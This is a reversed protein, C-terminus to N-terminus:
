IKSALYTFIGYQIGLFICYVLIFLIGAPLPFGGFRSLTGVLWYQGLYNVATGFILGTKFCGSPGNKDVTYFLPILCVWALFSLDKFLFPITFLVASLCILIYNIGQFRKM